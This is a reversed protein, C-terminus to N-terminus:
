PHQNLYELLLFLDPVGMQANMVKGVKTKERFRIQVPVNPFVDGIGMQVDAVATRKAQFDVTSTSSHIFGVHAVSERVEITDEGLFLTAPNVGNAIYKVQIVRPPDFSVPKQHGVLPSLKTILSGDGFINYRAVVDRNDFEVLANASKWLRSAGGACSIYGCLFIWGGKNSSSWRALFYQDSELGADVSKLNASVDSKTTQGAVIFNASVKQKIEENAPTKTRTPMPTVGACGSLLLGAVICAAGGGQRMDLLGFAKTAM